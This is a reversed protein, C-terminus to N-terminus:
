NQFALLAESVQQAVFTAPDEGAGEAQSLLPAAEDADLTITVRISGDTRKEFPPQMKIQIIRNELETIRTAKDQDNKELAEYQRRLTAVVEGVTKGWVTPTNEDAVLPESVAEAQPTEQEQNKAM